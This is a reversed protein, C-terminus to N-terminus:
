ILIMNRGHDGSSPASFETVTDCFKLNRLIDRAEQILKICLPAQGSLNEFLYMRPYDASPPVTHWRIQRKELFDLLDWFSSTNSGSGYVEGKVAKNALARWESPSMQMSFGTGETEPSPFGGFYLLKPQSSARAEADISDLIAGYQKAISLILTGLLQVNQMAFLYRAPCNQCHSIQTATAITKRLLHLGSPFTPQESERLQDLTLYFNALCACSASSPPLSDFPKTTVTTSSSVGFVTSHSLSIRDIKSPNGGTTNTTAGDELSLHLDAGRTEYDVGAIPPLELLADVNLRNLTEMM